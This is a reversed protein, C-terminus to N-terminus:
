RQYRGQNRIHLGANMQNSAVVQDKVSHENSLHMQRQWQKWRLANYRIKIDNSQVGYIAKIKALEKQYENFTEQIMWYRVRPKIFKFATKIFKRKSDFYQKQKIFGAVKWQHLVDKCHRKSALVTEREHRYRQYLPVKSDDLLKKQYSSTVQVVGDSACEFAGLREILRQKSFSRDISSAKIAIVSDEDALTRFVFGNGREVIELGFSKLVAHFSQWDDSGRLSLLVNSKMWTQLSQMQAHHDINSAKNQAGPHQTQHNTVSLGHRAELMQCAQGLKWFDRYPEHITLKYPHIKNIALHVHFHETDSHAVSIRQHEEFGLALCLEREIDDLVHDHPREKSDFSIILHYTKDSQARTNRSQTFNIEDTAFKLETTTCGSIVVREVREYVSEKNLLYTILRLYSNSSQNKSSIHKAIM